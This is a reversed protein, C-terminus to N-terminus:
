KSKAEKIADIIGVFNRLIGQLTGVFNAMPSNLGSLVQALLVERPPLAALNKLQNEDLLRGEMWIVKIKPKEVRKYVEYLVKAPSVPDEYSFVLGTPGKLYDLVGEFESQQAAMRIMTNKTVRYEARGKKLERRLKTMEEVNLGRFDTLFLSKTLSLREKLENVTKEKEVKLM